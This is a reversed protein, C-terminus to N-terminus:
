LSEYFSKGTQARSIIGPAPAFREGFRSELNRLQKLVEWTGLSEAYRIVGGRFPAFGMGYVSGIDIQRAAAGGVNDGAVGEDLARVAENVMSLALRQQIVDASLKSGFPPRSIDLQKIIEPNPKGKMDWDGRYQYFGSGTKRGLIGSEALTLVHPPGQMRAGYGDIANQAVKSAIDFGVEDLTRMPGMKMGFSLAAADIDKVAVGESLLYGAENLYPSFMRNVLFCPVDEVVIPTKGLKLGLACAKDITDQSTKAGRVVEVLPMAGPPNFFHIGVFREPNKVAESLDTVSLSSTNTGIMADDPVGAAIASLVKKKIEPNELVAEIVINTAPNWAPSDSHLLQLRELKQAIVAKDLSRSYSLLSEVRTLGDKLAAESIDRLQVAENPKSTAKIFLGAIGGGMPGAGVVTPQLEKFIHQAAKGRRKAEQGLEFLYQSSKSAQSTILAPLSKQDFALGAEIGQDLGTRISRIMEPQAPYNGQTSELVQQMAGKRPLGIYGRIKGAISSDSMGLWRFPRGVLGECLPLRELLNLKQRKPLREGRAIEEARSQLMEVPVIEDVLGTRLADNGNLVKGELLIPMAKTLGILRPLVHMGTWAALIQLKGEPLGVKYEANEEAPKGLVRYDCNLTIEFGGGVATGNIAAVTTVPLAAIRTFLEQGYRVIEEAEQKTKIQAFEKLDAGMCFVGPRSGTIVLGNAPPNQELDTIIKDLSKMRARNFTVAKEDASGLALVATGNATRQLIVQSATDKKEAITTDLSRQISAEVLPSKTEPPLVVDSQKLSGHQPAHEQNM